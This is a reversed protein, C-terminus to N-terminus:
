IAPGATESSSSSSGNGVVRNMDRFVETEYRWFNTQRFWAKFFKEQIKLEIREAFRTQRDLIGGDGYMEVSCGHDALWVNYNPKRRYGAPTAFVFLM